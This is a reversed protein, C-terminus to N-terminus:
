FDGDFPYLTELIFFSNYNRLDDVKRIESIKTLCILLLIKRQSVAKAIEAKLVSKKPPVHKRRTKFDM